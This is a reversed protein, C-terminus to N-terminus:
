GASLGVSNGSRVASRLSFYRFILNKTLRTEAVGLRRNRPTPAEQNTKLGRELKTLPGLQLDEADYM